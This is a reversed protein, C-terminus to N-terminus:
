RPRSIATLVKDARNAFDGYIEKEADYWDQGERLWRLVREVRRQLLDGSTLIEEM